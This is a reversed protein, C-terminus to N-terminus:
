WHQIWGNNKSDTIILCERLCVNQRQSVYIYMYSNMHCHPMFEYHAKTYKSRSAIHLKPATRKVPTTL